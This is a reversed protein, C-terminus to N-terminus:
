RPDHHQERSRMCRQDGVLRLRDRCSAQMTRPNDVAGSIPFNPRWEQCARTTNRTARMNPRVYTPLGNGQHRIPTGNLYARETIPNGCATIKGAGRMGHARRRATGCCDAMRLWERMLAHFLGASTPPRVRLRHGPHLCSYGPSAASRRRRIFQHFPPQYAGCSRDLDTHRPPITGIAAQGTWSRIFWQRNVQLLGTIKVATTSAQSSRVHWPRSPWPIFRYQSRATPSMSISEDSCSLRCRPM